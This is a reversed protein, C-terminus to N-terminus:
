KSITTHVIAAVQTSDAKRSARTVIGGYVGRKESYESNNLLFEVTHQKSDGFREFRFVCAFCMSHSESEIM